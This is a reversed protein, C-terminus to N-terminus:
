VLKHVSVLQTLISDLDFVRTSIRIAHFSACSALPYSKWQWPTWPSVWTDSSLSGALIASPFYIMIFELVDSLPTVACLM